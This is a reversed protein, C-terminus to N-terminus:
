SRFRARQVYRGIQGRRPVTIANDFIFVTFQKYFWILMLDTETRTMKVGIQGGFEGVSVDNSSELAIVDVNHLLSLNEISHVIYLFLVVVESLLKLYPGQL